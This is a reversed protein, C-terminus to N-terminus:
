GATHVHRQRRSVNEVLAGAIERSFEEPTVFRVTQPVLVDGATITRGVITRQMDRVYVHAGSGRGGPVLNRARSTFVLFRGDASVVPEQSRADGELYHTAAITKDDLM